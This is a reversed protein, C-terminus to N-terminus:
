EKDLSKYELPINLAVKNEKVQVNIANFEAKPIFSILPELGTDM